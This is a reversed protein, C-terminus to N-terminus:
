LATVLRLRRPEAKPEATRLKAKKLKAKAPKSASRPRTSSISGAKAACSVTTAIALV